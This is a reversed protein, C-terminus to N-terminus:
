TPDGLISVGGSSILRLAINVVAIIPASYKVPVAGSGAIALVAMCINAWFTKSLFISKTPNM